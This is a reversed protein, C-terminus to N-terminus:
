AQSDDNAALTADIATAGSREISIATNEENNEIGEITIRDGLSLYGGPTNIKYPLEINFIVIMSLLIILFVKNEKIFEKAIDYIKNIM